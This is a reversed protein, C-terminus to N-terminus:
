ATVKEKFLNLFTKDGMKALDIRENAWTKEIIYCDQKLKQKIERRCKKGQKDMDLALYVTKDLEAIKNAHWDSFKTGMIGYIDYELKHRYCTDKAALYDTLGEVLICKRYGKNIQHGILAKLTLMGFYHYAKVPNNNTARSTAGILKNNENRIPCVIRSRDYLLNCDNLSELYIGRSDLYRQIKPKNEEFGNLISEDLEINHLEQTRKPKIYCEFCSFDFDIPKKAFESYHTLFEELPAYYGCSFCKCHTEKVIFSPSNDTGKSHTERAFPCSLQFYDSYESYELDLSDLARQIQILEPM